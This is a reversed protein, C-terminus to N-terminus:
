PSAGSRRSLRELSAKAEQTVLALPTGHALRKLLTRAEPTGIHELVELARVWRLHEPSTVPGDLKKLLQEARLRTELAPHGEATKQLESRVRDGLAELEQTARQRVTFRRNDLDSILAAVHKPDAPPVPRLREDLTRVTQGPVAALRHIAQYARHADPSALDTWLAQWQKPTPPEARPNLRGTVAAVDWILTSTDDGGSFLRRGDPSFALANAKGRHGRLQRLEKGTALDWLRITNDWSASALTRGDPAFAVFTTPEPHGKLRLREKGSAAEWISIALQRNVALMKGDSSFALRATIRDMMPEATLDTIALRNDLLGQIAGTWADCRKGTAVEWCALDSGGAEATIVSRAGVLMKGDPSFTVSFEGGRGKWSVQRLEKGSVVDWLRIVGDDYGGIAVTNGDPSFAIAPSFGSAPLRHLIKRRGIDWLSITKVSAVALKKGDPSFTPSYGEIKWLEQGTTADWLRVGGSGSALIRGDPSLAISSVPGRHDGVPHIEKGIAVDWLRITTSGSFLTKGDASFALSRGFGKLSRREKGTAVDWLYISTGGEDSQGCSALLRGDPSFAIGGVNKAKARIKRVLKGTTVDWIPLSSDGQSSAAVFTGDPSLATSGIDKGGEGTLEHRLKRSAVDWLYIKSVSPSGVVLTKGDPTFALFDSSILINPRWPIQAIEKGTAVDWL